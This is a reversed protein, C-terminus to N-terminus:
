WTSLPSRKQRARVKSRGGSELEKLDQFSTRRGTGSSRRRHHIDEHQLVEPGQGTEQSHLHKVEVPLIDETVPHRVGDLVDEEWVGRYTALDAYVYMGTGHKRGAKM